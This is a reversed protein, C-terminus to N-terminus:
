EIACLRDRIAIIAELPVDADNLVLDGDVSLWRSAVPNPCDVYLEGEFDGNKGRGIVVTTRIGAAYITEDQILWEQFSAGGLPESYIPSEKTSTEATALTGLLTFCIWLASRVM